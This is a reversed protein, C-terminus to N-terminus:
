KRPELFVFIDFQIIERETGATTSIAMSAGGSSIIYTKLWSPCSGM